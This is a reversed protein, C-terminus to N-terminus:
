FQGVEDTAKEAYRLCEQVTSYETIPHFIVPYYDLSTLRDPTSGTESVFGSWNPVTQMDARLMRSILWIVDKHLAFKSAEVTGPLSVRVINLRPSNRHTVFCKELDSDEKLTFSRSGDRPVESLYNSMKDNESSCEQMMIGHATHVSGKGSLNNVFQDFNDFESHFVSPGSPSTVIRNTILASSNEVAM